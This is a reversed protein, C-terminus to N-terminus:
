ACRALRAAEMLARGIADAEVPTMLVPVPRPEDEGRAGGSWDLRVTAAADTERQSLCIEADLPTSDIPKGAEQPLHVAASYRTMRVEHEWRSWHVRDEVADRDDHGGACWSPCPRTQWYPMATEQEPEWGDYGHQERLYAESGAIQKRLQKRRPLAVLDLLLRREQADKKM